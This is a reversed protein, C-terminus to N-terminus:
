LLSRQLDASRAAKVKELDTRTLEVHHVRCWIRYANERGLEGLESTAVVAIADAKDTKTLLYDLFSAVYREWEHLRYARTVTASGLAAATAGPAGRRVRSVEPGHNEAGDIGDRRTEPARRRAAGARLASLRPVDHADVAGHTM